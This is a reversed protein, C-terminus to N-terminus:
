YYKPREQKGYNYTNYVNESPYFNNNVNTNINKEPIEYRKTFTINKEPIKGPALFIWFLIVLAIFIFVLLVIWFNSTDNAKKELAAKAEKIVNNTNVSGTHCDVEQKTTVGNLVVNSYCKANGNCAQSINIGGNIAAGITTLNFNDIICQCSTNAFNSTVVQTDTTIGTSAQGQNSINNSTSSNVTNTNLGDNGAASCSNCIQNFTVGGGVLRTKALDITTDDIICSSNTCYKNSATNPDYSPIVDIANCYPTCEKNLGFNNVYKTYVSDPLYCGCWQQANPNIKLTEESVTSCTTQLFDQCLGPYSSCVSFLWQVFPQDTNNALSSILSVGPGLNQFKKVAANLMNRGLDLGSPTLSGAFPLAGCAANQPPISSQKTIDSNPSASTTWFNNQFTPNNGYVTRWFIQQCPPLSSFSFSYPTPNPLYTTPGGPVQGAAWTTLTCTGGAVTTKTYQGNANLVCESSGNAAFNASTLYQTNPPLANVTWNPNNATGNPNNANVWLETFDIEGNDINPFLGEINGLCFQTLLNNCYRTDPARFDKSCTSNITDDSFCTPASANNSGNCQYDRLCCILPDGMNATRKCYGTVGTIACCGDTCTGSQVEWPARCDDFQCSEAAGDKAFTWEPDPFEDGSAPPTTGSYTGGIQQCYSTITSTSDTNSSCFSPILVAATAPDGEDNCTNTLVPPTSVINGM